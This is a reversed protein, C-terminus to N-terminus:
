NRIAAFRALLALAIMLVAIGTWTVMHEIVYGPDHLEDTPLDGIAFPNFAATCIILFAGGLLFIASVRLANPPLSLLALAPVATLILRLCLASPDHWVRRM